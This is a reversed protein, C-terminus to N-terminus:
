RDDRFPHNGLRIIELAALYPNFPASTLVAAPIEDWGVSTVILLVMGRGAVFFVVHFCVSFSITAGSLQLFPRSEHM